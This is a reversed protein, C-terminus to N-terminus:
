SLITPPISAIAFEQGQCVKMVSPEDIHPADSISLLQNTVAACQRSPNTEEFIYIFNNKKIRM